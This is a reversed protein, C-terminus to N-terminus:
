ERKGQYWDFADVLQGTQLCTYLGTRLCSCYAEKPFGCQKLALVVVEAKLVDANTHVTQIFLTHADVLTMEKLYPLIDKEKQKKGKGIYSVVCTDLSKLKEFSSTFDEDSTLLYSARQLISLPSPAGDPVVQACLVKLGSPLTENLKEVLVLPSIEEEFIVDMIECQSESGLPLATAFSLLTHPNFGNTYSVPLGTRRLARQMCRMLDLHSM